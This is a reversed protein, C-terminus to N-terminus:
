PGAEPFLAARLEGVHAELLESILERGTVRYKLREDDTEILVGRDLFRDAKPDSPVAEQFELNEGEPRGLAAQVWLEAGPELGVLKVRIPRRGFLAGVVRLRAKLITKLDPASMGGVFSGLAVMLRETEWKLRLRRCELPLLTRREETLRERQARCAENGRVTEALSRAEADRRIQAIQLDAEELRATAQRRAQALIENDLGETTHLIEM